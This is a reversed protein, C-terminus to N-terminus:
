FIVFLFLPSTDSEKIPWDRYTRYLYHHNKKISRYPASVEIVKMLGKEKRMQTQDPLPYNYNYTQQMETVYGDHTRWDSEKEEEYEMYQMSSSDQRMEVDEM